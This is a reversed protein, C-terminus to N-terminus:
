PPPGSDSSGPTVLTHVHTSGVDKGQNTITGTSVSIGAANITITNGGVSIVVGSSTLTLTCSGGTDQLVVGQPGNLLLANLNRNTNAPFAKQSIPQFVMPTMNGRKQYNAVGGGIGSMGGIYYNASTLFGKDGVQTPERIWQSFAQPVLVKPITYNGQAEVKVQVLEGMVATVTCPLNQVNLQQRDQAGKDIATPISNQIPTVLNNDAGM